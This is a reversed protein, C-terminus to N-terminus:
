LLKGMEESRKKCAAIGERILADLGKQRYVNVAEITTGGKSCVKETLETMSENSNLALLATGILTQITLTKSHEYTLGGDTGGNIKADIFM